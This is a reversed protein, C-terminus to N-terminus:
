LAQVAFGTLTVDAGATGSQGTIKVIVAGSLTEAPSTPGSNLASGNLGIGNSGAVQATAGTRLVTATIYWGGGSLAGAITNIATAGFYAKVTKTNGNVAYSGYATVQVGRGNTVLTNAPMTYLCLDTEGTGVNSVQATGCSTTDWGTKLTGDITATATGTGVSILPASGGGSLTVILQSLTDTKVGLNAAATVPGQTGSYAASTVMLSGNSDVRLGTNMLNSVQGLLLGSGLLCAVCAAVLTRKM